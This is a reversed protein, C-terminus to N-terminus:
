KKKLLRKITLYILGQMKEIFKELEMEVKIAATDYKPQGKKSIEYLITIGPFRPDEIEIKTNPVLKNRNFEKFAIKSYELLLSNHLINKKRIEHIKVYAKNERIELEFGTNHVIENRTEALIFSLLNWNISRFFDDSDQPITQMTTFDTREQKAVTIQIILIRASLFRHAKAWLHISTM